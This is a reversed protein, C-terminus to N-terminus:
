TAVPPAVGDGLFPLFEFKRNRASTMGLLVGATGTGLDMSLRYSQGGPFAVEGQYSVAYWLLRRARLGVIEGIETSSDGASMRSLAAVIGSLGTFLQPEVVFEPQCALVIAPLAEALREDEVHRLVEGAVLGIGGSGGDLYVLTRVGKEEVHLSGNRTRVCHDLERHLARVALDLFSRDGGAEYARLFFLAAGSWGGLLGVPERPGVGREWREALRRACAFALDRHRSDGTREAFRLLNLGIGSLGSLMGPATVRATPEEARDLLDLAVDHHGLHDLVYAIGHLGTYFGPQTPPQRRLADLLWEEHRPHRGFGCVSLAWLVGAAGYAFGLGGGEHTFQRMDGPFLRDRREPTASRLIGRVMSDTIAAWDPEAATVDVRLPRYDPLRSLVAGPRPALEARVSDGYGEPLDFRREVVSVFQDVKSWDLAWTRHFPMFMWLRVAAMAHRDADFGSRDAWPPAFGVVELPPRRHPRGAPTSIEFDILWVRDDESVLINGPHLDGLVVGRRHVEAVIEEITAVVRLARRTYAAVSEETVDPNVFPNEQGVWRWVVEGPVHELVLFHHGDVVHHDLLEPIGPVGRLRELIDKEHLLRGVADRGDRDLGAHPRGEKLVVQRDDSTRRALYVGGANSFHLPRVVRYPFDAASRSKRAALHPELFAPLTVWDPVTFGGGRRDPVLTGDPREVALVTEGNADTCEMRAFGGYRVYLPGEGWRLDSLVYPGHQGALEASLETLLTGLQEEDTPYITVFKGSSERPAYKSNQVFLMNRDRLFKFAIRRPVCYEWVRDLVDEANDMAASVHVKWGQAPLEGGAPRVSVWFDRDSREFGDPLARGVAGFPKEDTRWRTPSDYFVPDALAFLSYRERM